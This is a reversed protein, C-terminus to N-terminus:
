DTSSALLLCGKNQEPSYITLCWNGWWERGPEFYDNWESSEERGSGPYGVWDYIECDKETFLCLRLFAQFFAVQNSHTLTTGYPPDIIAELLGWFWNHKSFLNPKDLRDFSVLSRDLKKTTLTNLDLTKEIALSECNLLMQQHIALTNSSETKHVVNFLFVEFVAQIADLDSQLEKTKLHDLQVFM